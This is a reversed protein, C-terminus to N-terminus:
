KSIQQHIFIKSLSWHKWTKYFFFVIFQRNHLFFTLLKNHCAVSSHTTRCPRCKWFAVYNKKKYNDKWYFILARSARALACPRLPPPCRRPRRRRASNVWNPWRTFSSRAKIAIGAGGGGRGARRSGIGSVDCVVYM